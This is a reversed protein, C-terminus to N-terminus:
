ICTHIYRIYAYIMYMCIIYTLLVYIIYFLPVGLLFICRPNNKGDPPSWESQINLIITTCLATKRFFFFFPRYRASHSFSIETPTEHETCFAPSDLMRYVPVLWRSFSPPPTWPLYRPILVEERLTCFGWRICVSIKCLIESITTRFPLRFLALRYKRSNENSTTSSAPLLPSKM